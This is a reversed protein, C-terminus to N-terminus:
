CLVKEFSARAWVLIIFALPFASPATVALVCCFAVTSIARCYWWMMM